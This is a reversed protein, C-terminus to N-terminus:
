LYKVYLYKNRLSMAGLRQNCFAAKARPASWSLPLSGRSGGFDAMEAM